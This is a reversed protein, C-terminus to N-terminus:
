LSSMKIATADGEVKIHVPIRGYAWLLLEPATGFVRVVAEGHESVRHHNAAVVRPFGTPYLVVPQTSKALMRPAFLRLTGYLKDQAARSFERESEMGNARRVDELHVFHEATNMQSDFLRAPSFKGPGAGWDDVLADYDRQRQKDMARELHAHLAPIFMGLAATPQNERVLLHAALDRTTWGECLTPADPGLQHFLAVLRAREASSFSMDGLM